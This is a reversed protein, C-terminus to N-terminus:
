NIINIISVVPGCNTKQHQYAGFMKDLTELDISSYIKGEDIDNWITGAINAEPLKTWNLSKLPTSPKPIENIRQRSALKSRNQPQLNSLTIKLLPPTPPPPPPPPPPALYHIMNMRESPPSVPMPSAKFNIKDDDSLSGKSLITVPNKKEIQKYSIRHQLENINDELMLLKKKTELHISIEKELREKVRFISVEM